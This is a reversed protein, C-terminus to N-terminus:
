VRERCSARGIETRAQGRFEEIKDERLDPENEEMYDYFGSSSAEGAIQEQRWEAFTEYLGEELRTLVRRSTPNNGGSFFNIIGQISDAEEDMEYDYGGDYDDDRDADVTDPFYMEFEFGVRIRQAADSRAWKQLAGPSMDVETLEQDEEVPVCNPVMRDGKKKMGAQRYGTWCDEDLKVTELLNNLKKMLLAPRGQSDTKLGLKNAQRGTEGPRIDQTLAMSFRPDNKEAATPIYGSSEQVSQKFIDPYKKAWLRMIKGATANAENEYQSGTEGADAPLPSIEDQRHHVLEHALTRLIDVPHRDAVSIEIVNSAHDFRGFTGNRQSWAPDRRLRIRPAQNIGLLDCCEDAFQQLSEIPDVNEKISEGGGGGGDGGDTDTEQTGTNNHYGPYFWGGYVGYRFARPKKKKAKKKKKRAEAIADDSYPRLLELVRDRDKMKLAVKMDLREQDGASQWFRALEQIWVPEPYEPRPGLEHIQM